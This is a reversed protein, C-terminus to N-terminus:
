EKESTPGWELGGKNWIYLLGLLLVTIFFSIQLWGVWGLAYYAIAWSFIYAGEVDFILFFIAVLYFPVPYRLRASGTPIVGSEYPRSKEPNSKKEGLWSALFLLVAVLTLVLGVYVSLSLLGPEWPSLYGVSPLPEVTVGSRYTGLADRAFALSFESLLRLDEHNGPEEFAGACAPAFLPASEM